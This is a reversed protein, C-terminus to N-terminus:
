NGGEFSLADIVGTVPGAHSNDGATGHCVLTAFSLGAVLSAVLSSWTLKTAIRLM